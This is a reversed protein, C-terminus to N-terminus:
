EALGSCSLPIFQVVGCLDILYGVTNDAYAVDGLNKVEVTAGSRERGGAAADRIFEAEADPLPDTFPATCAALSENLIVLRHPSAPYVKGGDIFNRLAQPNLQSLTLYMQWVLRAQEPTFTGIEEAM